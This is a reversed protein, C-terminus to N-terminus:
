NIEEKDGTGPEKSKELMIFRNRDFRRKDYIGRLQAIREELGIPEEASQPQSSTFSHEERNVPQSSDSIDSLNEKRLQLLMLRKLWNYYNFSNTLDEDDDHEIGMAAREKPSFNYDYGLAQLSKLMKYVPLARQFEDRDIEINKEDRTYNLVLDQYERLRIINLLLEHYIDDNQLDSAKYLALSSFLVFEHHEARKLFAERLEFDEDSIYGDNMHKIVEAAQEIIESFVKQPNNNACNIVLQHAIIHMMQMKDYTDEGYEVTYDDPALITERLLTRADSSDILPFADNVAKYLEDFYTCSEYRSM